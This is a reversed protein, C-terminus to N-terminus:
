RQHEALKKQLRNKVNPWESILISYYVTDRISGDENVTHRRLTGEEVAGLRRLADRSRQNLSSTKFEVRGMSLTDFAHALMLLKAETNAATRQWAPAVWTWGIELRQHEVAINGFRSSGIPRGNERWVTAFPLAVGQALEAIAREIYRRLDDASRVRTM